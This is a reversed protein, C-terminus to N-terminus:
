LVIYVVGKILPTGVKLDIIYAFAGPSLQVGRFKGDWPINKGRNDFVIQGYRNFVKVEAGPFAELTEINWTDNLGDNNPSFANPVYLQKFVKVLMTDIAEACGKGSMVHLMYETSTGPNVVPNLTSIGTITANPTWTYNIDTGDASGNLMVSQGSIIVKDPGANAVPNKDIVIEISDSATCSTNSVTVAYVTSQSPLAVPNPATPNSLGDPPSWAYSTINSGIANLQVPTGECVEADSGANVVPKTYLRVVTSDFSTCGKLSTVTVHYLGNNGATSVPISPSQETSSFGSPGMWLFGAGDNAMLILSDGICSGRSSAAPVPYKNVSVSVVNSLISCSSISMNDRESVAFRYEYMGPLTIAPRIYTTNVEGPIDKWSAGRDTSLQWQYVPNNYGASVNSVLTFVSTDGTCIDVSDPKGSINATVLPGCARFTIDDLLLDNGCGGPANNRMRLVVSTVGTTTSFFFGYQKWGSISPIDGTEYSQLVTGTTTEISFTINPKIGNGGCASFKLLNYIWSAFEYTTNPCLGDVTKVFFDGPQYSANVIMMYGKVDGPTHDETVNYWTFGFCNSTANAVTYYGDNPCDNPVYQYNTAGGLPSGPNPGSGFTINVVPDGLSGQCLQANTTPLYTCSFFLLAVPIKLAQSTIMEWLLPKPM